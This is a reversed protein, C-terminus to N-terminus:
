KAGIRKNLDQGINNFQEQFFHTTILVGMVYVSEFMTVLVNSLESGLEVGYQQLNFSSFMNKGFEKDDKIVQEKSGDSFTLRVSITNNSDVVISAKDYLKEMCNVKTYPMEAMCGLTLQGQSSEYV